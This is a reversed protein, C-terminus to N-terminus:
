ALVILPLYNFVNGDSLNITSPFSSSFNTIEAIGRRHNSIGYGGQIIKDMGGHTWYAVWPDTGSCVSVIRVFRDAGQAAIPSALAKFSWNHDAQWLTDDDPTSDVFNGADDYVGFGNYGTGASGPITVFAGIATIAKNKPVYLRTCWSPGHNSDGSAAEIPFSASFLGYASLPYTEGAPGAPGPAGDAGVLSALWAAEDGVFGNAVAVEYASAGNVGTLFPLTNWPTFGDGVKVKDTDTEVAPEGAALVPNKDSWNASTDRRLKFTAKMDPEGETWSLIKM